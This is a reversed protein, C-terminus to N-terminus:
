GCAWADIEVKFAPRALGAAFLLTMCPKHGNLKANIMERREKANMENMLYFTLKVLDKVGMDAAHLNRIINDLSEGLQEIPDEPLTGDATM